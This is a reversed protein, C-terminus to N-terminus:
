DHCHPGSDPAAGIPSWTRKEPTYGVRVALCAHQRGARVLADALTDVIYSAVPQCVIDLTPQARVRQCVLLSIASTVMERALLSDPYVSALDATSARSLYVMCHRSDCDSMESEPARQGRPAYLAQKTLPGVVGIAPLGGGAQFARVAATTADDFTDGRSLHAGYAGLRERLAAVCRGRSPPTGQGAPSLSVCERRLDWPTTGPLDRLARMTPQDLVGDQRLGRAAQFEKIRKTTETLYHGTPEIPAGRARLVQQLKTVCDPRLDGYHMPGCGDLGALVADPLDPSSDDSWGGYVGLAALLVFVLFVARLVRVPCEWM